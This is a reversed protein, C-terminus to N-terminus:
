NKSSGGYQNGCYSYENVNGVVTNMNGGSEQWHKNNTQKIIVMKDWNNQNANGKHCLINFM